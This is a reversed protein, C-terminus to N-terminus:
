PAWEIFKSSLLGDRIDVTFEQKEEGKMVQVHHSGVTLSLNAPTKQAQEKGDVVVTLGPPKTILSLSGMQRALDVILGADRPVEIIRHQDRYGPRQVVFTHRGATLSVTCPSKCKNTPDSDFTVTAGAPSTTVQFDSEAPSKPQPIARRAV